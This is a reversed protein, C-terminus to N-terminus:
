SICIGVHCPVIQGHASSPRPPRLDLLADSLTEAHERGLVLEIRACEGPRADASGIVLLVSVSGDQGPVTIIQGEVLGPVPLPRVYERNRANEVHGPRAM